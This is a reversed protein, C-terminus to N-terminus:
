AVPPGHNYGQEILIIYIAQPMRFNAFANLNCKTLRESGRTHATQTM